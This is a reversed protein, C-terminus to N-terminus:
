TGPHRDPGDSDPEEERADLTPEAMGEAMEDQPNAAASEKRLRKKEAKEDKKKQRQIEKQRKEGGYNPRRPMSRSRGHNVRGSESSCYGAMTTSALVVGGRDAVTGGVELPARRFRPCKSGSGGITSYRVGLIVIGRRGPVQEM